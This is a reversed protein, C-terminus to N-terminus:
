AVRSGPCVEGALPLSSNWCEATILWAGFRRWSRLYHGHDPVAAGGRQVTVVYRGIEIAIDGSHDVRTTEFRLEQYGSEGLERIVREIAKPGQAAERHPPMFWADSAFLAAAHDYNGTNFSTCFDQSLERVASESNLTSGSGRGSYLAYM